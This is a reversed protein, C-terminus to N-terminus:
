AGPRDDERHHGHPQQDHREVKDNLPQVSHPNVAEKKGIRGRHQETGVERGQNKILDLTARRCRHLTKAIRQPPCPLVECGQACGNLGGSGNTFDQRDQKGQEAHEKQRNKGGIDHIAVLLM